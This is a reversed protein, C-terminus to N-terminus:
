EMNEDYYEHNRNKTMWIWWKLHINKMMCDNIHGIEIEKMMPIMRMLEINEDHTRMIEINEDHMRKMEINEDNMRKIKMMWELSRWTM